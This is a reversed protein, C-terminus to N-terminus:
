SRYLTQRIMKEKEKFAQRTLVGDCRMFGNEDKVAPLFVTGFFESLRIAKTNKEFVYCKTFDLKLIDFAFVFSLYQAELSELPNGMSALRGTEAGNEKVDYVGLVGINEGKSNVILFLYDGAKKRQSEIWKKQTEVTIDLKPLYKTLNPDQRLQLTFEADEIDVSRLTVFRGKIAEKVIM